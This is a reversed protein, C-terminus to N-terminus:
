AQADRLRRARKWRGENLVKLGKNDCNAKNFDCGNKYTVGNSACVMPNSESDCTIYPVNACAFGDASIGVILLSALVTAIAFKMAAFEPSTAPSRRVARIRFNLQKATTYQQYIAFHIPRSYVISRKELSARAIWSIAGNRQRSRYLVIRANITVAPYDLSKGGDM